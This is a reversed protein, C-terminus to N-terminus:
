SAPRQRVLPGKRRGDLLRRVPVVGFIEQFVDVFVLDGGADHWGSVLGGGAMGALVLGGANTDRGVVFLVDEETKGFVLVLVRAHLRDVCCWVEQMFDVLIM